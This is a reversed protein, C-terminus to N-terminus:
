RMGGKLAAVNPSDEMLGLCSALISLGKEDFDNLREQYHVLSNIVDAGFFNFLVVFFFM